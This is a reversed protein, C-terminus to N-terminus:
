RDCRPRPDPNLPPEKTEFVASATVTPPVRGARGPRLTAHVLVDTTDAQATVTFESEGAIVEGARTKVLLARPRPLPSDSDLAEVQFRARGDLWVSRVNDPTRRLAFRLSSHSHSRPSQPSRSSSSRSGGSGPVAGARRVRRRIPSRVTGRGSARAARSSPGIASWSARPVRFAAEEDLRRRVAAMREPDLHGNLYMTILEIDDMEHMDDLSVFARSAKLTDLVTHRVAGFFYQDSRQEPTLQPWRSWLEEMAQGVADQASERDLFREAHNLVRGHLRRYADSFLQELEFAVPRPPAAAAVLRTRESSQSKRRTPRM